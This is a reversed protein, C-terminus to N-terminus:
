LEYLVFGVPNLQDDIVKLGDVQKTLTMLQESDNGYNVYLDIDDGVLMKGAYEKIKAKIAKRDLTLFHMGDMKMNDGVCEETKGNPIFRTWSLWYSQKNRIGKVEDVSAVRQIANSM